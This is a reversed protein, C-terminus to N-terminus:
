QRLFRRGGTTRSLISGTATPRTASAALGIQSGRTADPGDSGFEQDSRSSVCTCCPDLSESHTRSACNFLSFLSCAPRLALARDHASETTIKMDLFSFPFLDGVSRLCTHTHLVHRPAQLHEGMPPGRAARQHTPRYATGGAPPLLTRTGAHTADTGRARRGLALVRLVRRCYRSWTLLGLRRNKHPKRM